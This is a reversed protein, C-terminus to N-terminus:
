QGSPRDCRSVESVNQFCEVLGGRGSGAVLSWRGWYGPAVRGRGSVGVLALLGSSRTAECRM